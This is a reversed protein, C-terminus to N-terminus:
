LVVSTFPLGPLADAAYRSWEGAIARRDSWEPSDPAGSGPLDVLFTLARESPRPRFVTRLLDLLEPPALNPIM